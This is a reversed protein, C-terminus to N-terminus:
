EKGAGISVAGRPVGTPAGTPLGAPGSDERAFGASSTEGWVGIADGGPAGLLGIGNGTNTSGAGGRAGAGRGRGM